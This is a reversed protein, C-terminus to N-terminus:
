KVSKIWRNFSKFRLLLPFITLVLVSILSVSSLISPKSLLHDIFYFILLIYIVTPVMTSLIYKKYSLSAFGSAYSILGFSIGPISRFIFVSRLNIYTSLINIQKRDNKTTFIKLIKDALYRGIYFNITASVTYGIITLIIGIIFPLTVAGAFVFPIDPLPPIVIAIIILLLYVIPTIAEYSGITKKTEEVIKPLDPNNAFGFGIGLIFVLYIFYYFVFSKNM